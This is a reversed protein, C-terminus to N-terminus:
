LRVQSLHKLLQETDDLVVLLGLLLHVLASSVVVPSWVLAVVVWSMVVHTVVVMSAHASTVHVVRVLLHTSLWLTLHALSHHVLLLSHWHLWLHHVLWDWLSHWHLLWACWHWWHLLLHMHSLLLLLHTTNGSLILLTGHFVDVSHRRLVRVQLLLNTAADVLVHLMENTLVLSWLDGTHQDLQWDVLDLLVHHVEVVELHLDLLGELM